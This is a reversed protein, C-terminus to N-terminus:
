LMRIEQLKKKKCDFMKRFCKKERIISKDSGTFEDRLEYVPSNPWVERYSPPHEFM